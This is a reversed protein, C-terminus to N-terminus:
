VEEEFQYTLTIEKKEGPSLIVTKWAAGDKFTWDEPLTAVELPLHEEIEVTATTSTPNELEFVVEKQAIFGVVERYDNFRVELRRYAVERRKAQIQAGEFVLEVEQNKRAGPFAISQCWNGKKDWTLLNGPPLPDATNKFTIVRFLEEDSFRYKEQFPFARVEKFFTNTSRAPLDVKGSLAFLQYESVQQVTIEMPTHAPVEEAAFTMAKERALARPLPVEIAPKGLLWQLTVQEFERDSKQDIHVTPILYLTKEEENLVGLYSEEWSLGRVFFGALLQYDGENEAELLLQHHNERAELRKVQLGKQLPYIVVRGKEMAEQNLLLRNEGAQLHLTFLEEMWALNIGQYVTLKKANPPLEQALSAWAFSPICFLMLLSVIIAFFFEKIM